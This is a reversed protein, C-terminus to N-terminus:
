DLTIYREEDDFSREGTFEVVESPIDSLFRSPLDYFSLCLESRARTMAVYMLRREEELQEANDFSRHHPLVGENAGAVFVRDFELGKALHITMLSVMALQKKEDTVGDTAQLLSARELFDELTKFGHAFVILEAINERRDAPNTLNEDIYDFYDAVALFANILKVPNLDKERQLSEMAERARGKRLAKDLRERSLEDAPNFVLRLAALIDKIERREYFKLGGFIQYPINNEILAQELARSQANTRYLIAKTQGTSNGEDEGLRIESTIWEAEAIEHPFEVIRVTKGPSNKTWLKDTKLGEPKRSDKIIASAAELINSTSRYNEGLFYVQSGPWDREFGLFVGLNSGRWTYITQNHDGVVSLNTGKQALLRVLEYQINNIDQYEDVLFHSFRRQYRDLSDPSTRFLEVPKLILDDFDFANNEALRAEYKEFIGLFFRGQPSYDEALEEKSTMGNKVASIKAYIDAPKVSSRPPTNEKVIKKVLKFADDADFIVFNPTRASKRANERLIRAGLSHFTGIFPPTTKLRKLISAEASSLEAKKSYFITEVREAMERAAKNTFTLACIKDPPVGRKILQAIRSTLTRTKGTGAGAVILIPQDPALVARKQDPNLSPIAPKDIEM